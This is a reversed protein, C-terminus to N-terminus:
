NIWTILIGCIQIYIDKDENKNMNHLNQFFFDLLLQNWDYKNLVFVYSKFVM